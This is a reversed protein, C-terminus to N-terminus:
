LIYSNLFSNTGKLLIIRSFMIIFFSINQFVIKKGTRAAQWDGTALWM